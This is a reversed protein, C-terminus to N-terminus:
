RCSRRADCTERTLAGCSDNRSAPWNHRIAELSCSYESSLKRNASADAGVKGGDRLGRRRLGLRSGRSGLSGSGRGLLDDGRKIDLTTNVGVALSGSHVNVHGASVSLATVVVLENVLEATSADRGLEESPELLQSSPLWM